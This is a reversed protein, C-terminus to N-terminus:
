MLRTNTRRSHMQCSSQLLLQQLALLMGAGTERLSHPRVLQALWKIPMSWMRASIYRSATIERKNINLPGGRKFSSVPMCNFTCSISLGPGSLVDLWGKDVFNALEDCM